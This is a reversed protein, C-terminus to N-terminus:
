LLDFLYPSQATGAGPVYDDTVDWGRCFGLEDADVLASRPRGSPQAHWAVIPTRGGGDDANLPGVASHERDALQHRTWRRARHRSSKTMVIQWTLRM